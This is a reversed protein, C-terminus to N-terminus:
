FVIKLLFNFHIGSIMQKKKGYKNALYERYLNANDQVKAEDTEYSAIPIQDEEPLIPPLSQPWLLEQDLTTSVVNQITDLMHYAEELSDVTPTIMEVQSESFDTTIYPNVSKDGFAKPHPTTALKGSYNVRVNEKEIGFQCRLLLKEINNHQICKIMDQNLALM